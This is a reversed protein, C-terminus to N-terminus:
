DDDHADADDRFCDNTLVALFQLETFLLSGNGHNKPPLQANVPKCGVLFQRSSSGVSWRTHIGQGVGLLQSCQMFSPGGCGM